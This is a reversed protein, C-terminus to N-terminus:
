AQAGVLIALEAQELDSPVASEAEAGMVTFDIPTEADTTIAGNVATQGAEQVLQAREELLAQERAKLAEIEAQMAMRVSLGGTNARAGRPVADWIASRQGYGFEPADRYGLLAKAM